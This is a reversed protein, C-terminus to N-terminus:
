LLHELIFDAVKSSENFFRPTQKKTPDQKWKEFTIISDNKLLAELGRRV